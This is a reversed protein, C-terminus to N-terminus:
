LSLVASSELDMVERNHIILIREEEDSLGKAGPLDFRLAFYIESIKDYDLYLNGLGFSRLFARGGRLVLFSFRFAEAQLESGGGDILEDKLAEFVIFARRKTMEDAMLM